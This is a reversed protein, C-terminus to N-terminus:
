SPFHRLIYSKRSSIKMINQKQYRNCILNRNYIFFIFYEHYLELTIIKKSYPHSLFYQIQSHTQLLIYLNPERLVSLMHFPNQICQSYLTYDNWLKHLFPLQLLVKKKHSMVIPKQIDEMLCHITNEFQLTLRYDYKELSHSPKECLKKILTYLVITLSPCDIQFYDIIHLFDFFFTYDLHHLFSHDNNELFFLFYHFSDKHIFENSLTIIYNKNESFHIYSSFFNQFYKNDIDLLFLSDDIIICIYTM